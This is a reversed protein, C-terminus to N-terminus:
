SAVELLKRITARSLAAISSHVERGEDDVYRVFRSGTVPDVSRRDEPTCRWLARELLARITREERVHPEETVVYPLSETQM